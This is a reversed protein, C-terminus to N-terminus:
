NNYNRADAVKIDRDRAYKIGYSGPYCYLTFDKNMTSYTGFAHLAVNQVSSPLLISKLSNCSEFANEGISILGESLLVTKLNTCREFLSEPIRKVKNPIVIKSLRKCSSFAAKGIEEVGDPLVLDSLSICHQFSSEGIATLGDPLYVSTLSFCEKFLGKSIERISDPLDVNVINTGSFAYEGVMKVSDPIFVESIATKQLAHSGITELTSPLQIEKLAKCWMFASDDMYKFGEPVVVKAINQCDKFVSKGIGVIHRGQIENPIIMEDQEFGLFETIYWEGNIEAIKYENQNQVVPEYKKFQQPERHRRRPQDMPSSITEDISLGYVSAWIQVGEIAYRDAIGYENELQKLYQAVRVASVDKDRRINDSIGSEYVALVINVDRKENPFYDRLLGKLRARSQLCAPNNEIIQKIDIM